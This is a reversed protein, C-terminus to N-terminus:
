KSAIETQSPMGRIVVLQAARTAAAVQDSLPWTKTRTKTRARDKSLLVHSTGADGSQKASETCRSESNVATFRRDRRDPAFVLISLFLVALLGIRFQEKRLIM